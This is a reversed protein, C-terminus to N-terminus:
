DGSHLREARGVRQLVDDLRSLRQGLVCRLLHLRHHVNQAIQDSHRPRRHRLRAVRVVHICLHTRTTRTRRTEHPNSRITDTRINGTEAGSQRWQEVSKLGVEWMHERAVEFEMFTHTATQGEGYGLWNWDAWSLDSAM